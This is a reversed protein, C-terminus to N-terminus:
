SAQRKLAAGVIVKKTASVRFIAASLAGGCLILLEVLQKEDVPLALGRQAAVYAIVMAILSWITRSQLFGKVQQENM